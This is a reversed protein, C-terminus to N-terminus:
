DWPGSFTATNTDRHAQIHMGSVVQNIIQAYTLLYICVYIYISLYICVYVPICIYVCMYIYMPKISCLEGFDLPYCSNERKFQRLKPYVGNEIVAM